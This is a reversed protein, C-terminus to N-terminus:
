RGKERFYDTLKEVAEVCVSPYMKETYTAIIMLTNARTVILGDNDSKAYISNKDARICRYNKDTFLLGEKRIMSCKKFSEQLHLIQDKPLTFGPSSARIEGDKRDVIACKEVHETSTLADHLLNSLQNMKVRDRWFEKEEFDINM